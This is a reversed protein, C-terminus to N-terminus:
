FRTLFFPSQVFLYESEQSRSSTSPFARSIRESNAMVSNSVRGDLCLDTRNCTFKLFSKSKGGRQLGVDTPPSRKGGMGHALAAMQQITDLDRVNHRGAFEIVYRQLHKVSMKHYTGYFGRKLMSWFSEIGNTHAMGKVYEGVSHQVSEHNVSSLGSYAQNGDTDVTSGEKFREGVFDRLTEADTSQVVTAGVQNTERDKAGVVAAKGVSGRGARLKKSEHKNSEKGGIYIEDVEVPGNFLQFGQGWSKRIRHAMFWASSQRIKLDRHLKMSSVGKLNTAMLYLGIVWKQLPIHSREMVTGTRVSFYKRCDGCRYPM